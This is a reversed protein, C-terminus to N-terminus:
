LTHVHEKNVIRCTYTANTLIRGNFLRWTNYESGKANKIKIEKTKNTNSAM